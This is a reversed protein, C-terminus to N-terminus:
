LQYRRVECNAFHLARMGADPLRRYWGEFVRLTEEHAVVAVCSDPQTRLWELFGLVRAKYDLVSEGGNARLRLPDAATAAFYDSVPRGDFGSRIDNLSDNVEVQVGHHRNIIAATQRARPLASSIIRELPETSLARAAAEAQVIGVTTLPVRRNPDDNCLELRNYTTEGHRLAFFKMERAFHCNAATM